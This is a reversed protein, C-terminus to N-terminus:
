EILSLLVSIKDRMLPKEIVMSVQWRMCKDREDEESVHASIIVIPTSYNMGDSKSRISEIVNWGSGDALGIDMLILSYPNDGSKAIASKETDAIVVDCDYRKLCTMTFKQVIPHDEVLLIAPQPSM